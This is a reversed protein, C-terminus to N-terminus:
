PAARPRRRIIEALQELQDDALRVPADLARPPRGLEGPEPSVRIVSARVLGGARLEPLVHRVVVFSGVAVALVLAVAVGIGIAAIAVSIGGMHSAIFAVAVLVLVVPSIRIFITV